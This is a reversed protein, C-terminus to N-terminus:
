VIGNDVHLCNYADVNIKRVIDMCCSPYNLVKYTAARIQSETVRRHIEGGTLAIDWCPEECEWDPNFASANMGSLRLQWWKEEFEKRAKMNVEFHSGGASPCTGAFKM